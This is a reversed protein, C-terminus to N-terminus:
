RATALHANVKVIPPDQIRTPDWVIEDVKGPEFLMCITSGGYQFCGLEEGKSVRQGPVVEVRCSSVEGMGIFVCAIQGVAPDDAEVVIVARAAMASTYGQSDNLGEPDPGQAEACSYYTGALNYAKVITGGVPAHWRHYSYANLFAQYVTGGVFRRALDEEHAGVMDRLSYPQSKIWFDDVLKVDRRLAYPKAECPSVVIKGDDAGEVPRVGDRFRRTFFDNWSLFGWYPLERHTVFQSLGIKADAEASFWGDPSGTNLHARSHPGGLFASWATLVRRIQKNFVPHRFVAYGSPMCMPWDFVANLPCVVLSSDSFPPAYSMLYDIVLMLEDIDRYGLAYGADTAEGIARTLGMRLTADDRLLTHLAAVAESRPGSSSAHESAQRCLRLRFEAVASEDAPLWNGLRKRESAPSSPANRPPM